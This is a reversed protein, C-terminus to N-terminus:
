YVCMDKKNLPIKWFNVLIPWGHDNGGMGLWGQERANRISNGLIQGLIQPRFFFTVGLSEKRM